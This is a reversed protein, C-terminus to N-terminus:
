PQIEGGAKLATSVLTQWGTGTTFIVCFQIILPKTEDFSAKYVAPFAMLAIIVSAAIWGWIGALSWQGGAMYRQFYPQVIIGALLALYQPLWHLKQPEGVPSQGGPRRRSALDFYEIIKNMM